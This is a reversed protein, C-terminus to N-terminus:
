LYNRYAVLNSDNDFILGRVAWPVCRMRGKAKPNVIQWAQVRWKGDFREVMYAVETWGDNRRVAEGASEVLRRELRDRPAPPWVEEPVHCGAAGLLLIVGLTRSLSRARVNM